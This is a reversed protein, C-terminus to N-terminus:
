QINMWFYKNQSFRITKLYELCAKDNRLGLPSLNWCTDPDRSVEDVSLSFPSSLLEFDNGPWQGRDGICLSTTLLGRNNNLENCAKVLNLKSAYPKVIIDISHSSEVFKINDDAYQAVISQIVLRAKNWKEKENVSITLQYPRLEVKFFDSPTIKDDLIKKFKTLSKESLRSKDPHSNDDLSSIDSGNYYGIIINKYYHKPIIKQLVDRVSKGRGTAIGLTIGAKVTRILQKSIEESLGKFRNEKSCLTGDYDFIIAGFRANRLRKVFEYYKKEWFKLESRSLESLTHAGTKRRIALQIKYPLDVTDDKKLLGSYKLNYLRRGFQPVGPNGPDIKRKLGFEKTIFLSKILLDIASFSSNYRSGLIFKPIEDPLISLTSLALKEEFPTIIAIVASNNARKAFWHHRGHAFNRYDSLLVTGLAAETFKSEIDIAVAQGWGGYLITFTTSEDVQQLFSFLKKNFTVSPRDLGANINKNFIKHLITFFSVLSNTALFGDKGTPINFEFPKSISYKRALNTLQADKRMCITIVSKPECKVVERFGALIDINSGAASIFLLKSNSIVQKSFYLELPTVAKGVSGSTQYLSAGYYCASLSGGSGVVFLPTEPNDFINDSIEQTELNSAWDFIEYVKAIEKNFPKGM